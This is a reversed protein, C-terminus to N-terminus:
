ATMRALGWAAISWSAVLRFLAWRRNGGKWVVYCDLLGAYGGFVALVTDLEAYKGQFYFIFYLLGLVTTRTQGAVMVAHAARTEAVHAPFGFEVMAGRPNFLPLIGGITTTTAVFLPLIHRPNFNWIM